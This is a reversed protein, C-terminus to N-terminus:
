ARPDHGFQQRALCDVDAGHAPAVEALVEGLAADVQDLDDGLEHGVGVRRDRGAAASRSADDHRETGRIGVEQGPPSGLHALQAHRRQRGPPELHAAAVVADAEIGARHVAAEAREALQGLVAPLAAEESAPQAVDPERLAGPPDLAHAAAPRDFRPEERGATVVGIHVQV